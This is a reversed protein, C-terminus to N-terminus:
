WDGNAAAVSVGVEHGDTSATATLRRSLVHKPTSSKM